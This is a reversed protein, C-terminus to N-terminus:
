VPQAGSEGSTQATKRGLMSCALLWCFIGLLYAFLLRFFLSVGDGLPTSTKPDPKLSMLGEISLVALLAVILLVIWYALSRAARRWGAFDLLGRFGQEAGAAAFPLLLGPLIVWRLLWVISSYTKDLAPESIMRRLWAPFESRLFAPLSISYQDLEAILWQLLFFVAAWVAIAPLHRVAKKFAALLRVNGSRHAIQYFDLTGGHLVLAAAATLLIFFSAYFLQWGNAEHPRVWWLFALFILVNGFFQVLWLRWNIVTDVFAERVSNLRPMM